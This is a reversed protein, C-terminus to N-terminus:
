PNGHPNRELDAVSYIIADLLEERTEARYDREEFEPGYREVGLRLRKALRELLRLQFEPLHSADRVLADLRGSM